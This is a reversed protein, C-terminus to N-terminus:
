KATEVRNRDIFKEIDETRFRIRGCVKIFTIQRKEILRFVSRKSINFFQALEDTTMTNTTINIDM